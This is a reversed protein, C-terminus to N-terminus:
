KSTSGRNKGNLTLTVLGYVIIYYIIIWFDLTRIIIDEEFCQKFGYLLYAVDSTLPNNKFHYPENRNQIIAFDMTDGIHVYYM